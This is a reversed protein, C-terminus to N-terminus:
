SVDNNTAIHGEFKPNSKSEVQLTHDIKIFHIKVDLNANRQM